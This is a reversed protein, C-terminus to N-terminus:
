IFPYESKLISLPNFLVRKGGVFEDWTKLIGGMVTHFNFYHGYQSVFKNLQPELGWCHSCIPDSVYYLDVKPLHKIM